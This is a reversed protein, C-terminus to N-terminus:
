ETPLEEVSEVQWQSAMIEDLNDWEAQFEEDTIDGDQLKQELEQRKEPSQWSATAERLAQQEARLQATKENSAIVHHYSINERTVTREESDPVAPDPPLTEEYQYPTGEPPRM